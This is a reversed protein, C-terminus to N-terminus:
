GKAPLALTDTHGVIADTRTVARWADVTHADVQGTEDAAAAFGAALDAILPQDSAGLRWASDGQEVAYGAASFAESM